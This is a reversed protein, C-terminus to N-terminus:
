RPPPEVLFLEAEIVERVAALVDAATALDDARREGLPVLVSDLLSALVEPVPPADAASHGDAAFQEMHSLLLHLQGALPVLQEVLPWAKSPITHDMRGSPGFSHLKAGLEFNSPMSLLTRRRKLVGADEVTDALDETLLLEVLDIVPANITVAELDVTDTATLVPVPVVVEGFPVFRLASM